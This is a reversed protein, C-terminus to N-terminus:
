LKENMREKLFNEDTFCRLDSVIYRRTHEYNNILIRIKINGDEIYFHEVCDIDYNEIVSEDIPFGYEDVIFKRFCDWNYYLINDIAKRVEVYVDTNVIPLKNAITAFPSNWKTTEAIGRQREAEEYGDHFGRKYEERLEKIESM